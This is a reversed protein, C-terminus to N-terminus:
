RNNRDIIRDKVYTEFFAERYARGVPLQIDDLHIGSSEVETIYDLNVIHSKSIRAFTSEPLQRHITALNMATIVKKGDACYLVVYDKMGEIYRIDHFALKILKRDSRVFFYPPLVHPATDEEAQRRFLQRARLVAREFREKEIPKLLYDVVQLEYGELAYQPYATTIITLPPESLNHLLELGTMSPMEIDLFLLDIGGDEMRSIAQMPNSYSGELILWEYPEILMEIGQRALPEDDLIICHMHTSM